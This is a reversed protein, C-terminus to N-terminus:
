HASRKSMSSTKRTSWTPAKIEREVYVTELAAGSLKSLDVDDAQGDAVGGDAV